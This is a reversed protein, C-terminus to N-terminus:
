GGFPCPPPAPIATTMGAPVPRSSSRDRVPRAPLQGLHPRGPPESHACRSPGTLMGSLSSSALVPCSSRDRGTITYQWSQYQSLPRDPANGSELRGGDFPARVQGYPGAAPAQTNLMAMVDIARCCEAVATVPVARSSGPPGM